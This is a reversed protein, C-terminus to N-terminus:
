ALTHQPGGPFLREAEGDPLGLQRGATRLTTRNWGDFCAEGAVADALQDRIESDPDAAAAEITPIEASM